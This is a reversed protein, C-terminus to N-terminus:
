FNLFSTTNPDQEPFLENFESGSVRHQLRLLPEYVEKYIISTTGPQNRTLITIPTDWNNNILSNKAGKEILFMALEINYFISCYLLATNGLEDAADVFVSSRTDVHMDNNSVEKAGEVSKFLTAFDDDYFLSKAVATGSNCAALLLPSQQKSDRANRDVYYKRLEEV